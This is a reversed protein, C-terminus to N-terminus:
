PAYSWAEMPAGTFPRAIGRGYLDQHFRAHPRRTFAEPAFVHVPHGTAAAETLMSISDGTVVLHDALGLWGTYPNDVGPQWPFLVRPEALTTELAKLAAASTRPSTTLAVGMNQTQVLGNVKTALDSAMAATFRKKGYDGGVVVCVLPRPLDAVSDRWRATEAALKEPTLLHPAGTITMGGPYDARGDHSSLVVMDLHKAVGPKPDQLHVALPRRGSRRAIEKSLWANVRALRTGASLVVAPMLAPQPDLVPDSNAWDVGIDSPGFVGMPKLRRVLHYDSRYAIRHEVSPWGLQQAVARSQHASGLLRDTLVWVLPEPSHVSAAEAM